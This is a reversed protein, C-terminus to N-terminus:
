FSDNYYSPGLVRCWIVYNGDTALDISFTASGTAGINSAIYAGGSASAESRIVMPEAIFGQEAELGITTLIPPAQHYGFVGNVVASVVILTTLIVTIRLPKDFTGTTM